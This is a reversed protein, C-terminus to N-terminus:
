SRDKGRELAATRHDVGGVSLRSSDFTLDFQLSAVQAGGSSTLRVAVAIGTQGPTGSGDDVSFTALPAQAMAISQPSSVALVLGIAVLVQLPSSGRRPKAGDTSRRRQKATTYLESSAKM